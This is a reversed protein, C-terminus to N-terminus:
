FIIGSNTFALITNLVCKFYFICYEVNINTKSIKSFLYM